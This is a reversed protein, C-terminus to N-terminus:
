SHIDRGNGDNQVNSDVNYNIQNYKQTERFLRFSFRHQNEFEKEVSWASNVTYIYNRLPRSMHIYSNRLLM